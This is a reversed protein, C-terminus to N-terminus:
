ILKQMANKGSYWISLPTTGFDVSSVRRFDRFKTAYVVVDRLEQM